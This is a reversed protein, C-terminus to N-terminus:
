VRIHRKRRSRKRATPMTFRRLSATRGSEASQLLSKSWSPGDKFNWYAFIYPTANNQTATQLRWDQVKSFYGVDGSGVGAEAPADRYFKFNMLPM